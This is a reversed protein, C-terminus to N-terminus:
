DYIIKKYRNNLFRLSYIYPHLLSTNEDDKLFFSNMRLCKSSDKNRFLISFTVFSYCSSHVQCAIKSKLFEKLPQM